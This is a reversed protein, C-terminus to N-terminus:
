WKEIGEYMNKTYKTLVITKINNNNQGMELFYHSTERKYYNETYTLKNFTIPTSNTIPNNDCKKMSLTKSHYSTDVKELHVDSLGDLNHHGSTIVWTHWKRCEVTCQNRQTVSLHTGLKYNLCPEEPGPRHSAAPRDEPLKVTRCAEGILMWSSTISETLWVSRVKNKEALFTNKIATM